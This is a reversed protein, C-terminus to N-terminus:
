KWILSEVSIRIANTNRNQIELASESEVEGPCAELHSLAGLPDGMPVVGYRVDM